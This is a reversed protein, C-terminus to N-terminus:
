WDIEEAYHRAARAHAEAKRTHELAEAKKVENLVELYLLDFGQEPYYHRRQWLDELAARAEQTTMRAMAKAQLFAMISM